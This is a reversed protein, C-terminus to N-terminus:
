DENIRSGEFYIRNNKFPIDIGMAIHHGFIQMIDWLESRYDDQPPVGEKALIEKGKDTLHVIAIENLNVSFEKPSNDEPEPANLIQDDNPWIPTDENRM